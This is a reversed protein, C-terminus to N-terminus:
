IVEIILFYILIFLLCQNIKNKLKCSTLNPDLKIIPGLQHDLSTDGADSKSGRISVDGPVCM